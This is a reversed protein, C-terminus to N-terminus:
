FTFQVEPNAVQIAIFYNAPQKKSTIEGGGINASMENHRRNKKRRKEKRQKTQKERQGTKKCSKECIDVVMIFFKIGILIVPVKLIGIDFIM